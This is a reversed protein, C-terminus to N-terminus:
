KYLMSGSYIMSKNAPNHEPMQLMVSSPNLNIIEYYYTVEGSMTIALIKTDTSYNWIGKATVQGSLQSLGYVEQYYHFYCYGDEQFKLSKGSKNEDYYWTGMLNAIEEDVTYIVTKASKLLETINELGRGMPGTLDKAILIKENDESIIDYWCDVSDTWGIKFKSKEENLYAWHGGSTVFGNLGSTLPGINQYYRHYVTGDQNFQYYYRDDESNYFWKGIISPNKKENEEIEINDPIKEDPANDNCSFFCLFIITFLFYLQAKRM